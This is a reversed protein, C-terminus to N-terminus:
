RLNFHPLLKLITNNRTSAKTSPSSAKTSTLDGNPTPKKVPKEKNSNIRDRASRAKREEETKEAVSKDGPM